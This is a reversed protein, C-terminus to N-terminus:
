YVWQFDRGDVLCALRVPTTPRRDRRSVPCTKDSIKWSSNNLNMTCRAVRLGHPTKMCITSGQAYYEGFYRCRCNSPGDEAIATGTPMGMLVM